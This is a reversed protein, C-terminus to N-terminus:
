VGIRHVVYKGNDRKYLPIDGKKLPRSVPIIVVSDIGNRLMPMMSTGTIPLVASGGNEMQLQLIPMLEEMPIQVKEM